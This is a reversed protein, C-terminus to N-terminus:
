PTRTLCFKRPGGARTDEIASTQRERERERKKKLTNIRNQSLASSYSLLLFLPLSLIELLSQATLASGSAPETEHVMLDHGSGFDLTPHKVSQAM